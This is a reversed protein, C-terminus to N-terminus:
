GRHLCCAYSSFGIQKWSSDSGQKNLLRNEMSITPNRRSKPLFEFWGCQLCNSSCRTRIYVFRKWGSIMLIKDKIQFVLEINKTGIYYTRISCFLFFFRRMENENLEDSDGIEGFVFKKLQWSNSINKNVNVLYVFIFLNAFENRHFCHNLRKLLQFTLFIRQSEYQNLQVLYTNIM